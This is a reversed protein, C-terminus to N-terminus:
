AEWLVTVGKDVLYKRIKKRRAAGLGPIAHVWATPAQSLQWATKMGPVGAVWKMEPCEGVLRSLKIKSLEARVARKYDREVVWAPKVLKAGGLRAHPTNKRDTGQLQKVARVTARGESVGRRRDRAAVPQHGPKARSMASGILRQLTSVPSTVATAEMAALEPDIEPKDPAAAYQHEQM